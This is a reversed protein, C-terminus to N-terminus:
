AAIRAAIEPIVLLSNLGFKGHEVGHAAFDIYWQGDAVYRFQHVGPAFDLTAHWWGDPDKHMPSDDPRWGNFTGAVFVRAAQPRYFRFEVRGDSLISTM